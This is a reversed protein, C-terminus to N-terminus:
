NGEFMLFIISMTDDPCRSFSCAGLPTRPWSLEFDVWLHSVFGVVVCGSDGISPSSVGVFQLDRTSLGDSVGSNRGRCESCPLPISKFAPGIAPAHDVEPEMSLVPTRLTSPDLDQSHSTRAGNRCQRLIRKRQEPTKHTSLMSYGTLPFSRICRM